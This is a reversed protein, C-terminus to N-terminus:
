AHITSLQCHIAMWNTKAISLQCNAVRRLYISNFNSLKCANGENSLSNKLNLVKPQNRNLKSLFFDFSLGIISTNNIIDNNHCYHLNFDNLYPNFHQANMAIECVTRLVMLPKEKENKQRKLDHWKALHVIFLLTPGYPFTYLKRIKPIMKFRQSESNVQLRINWFNLIKQKPGM